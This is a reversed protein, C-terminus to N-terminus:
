PSFYFVRRWRPVAAGVGAGVLGGIVAGLGALIPIAEPCSGGISGGAADPDGCRYNAWEGYYVGVVAPPIAGVIAGVWLWNGRVWVAEIASLPTGWRAGHINLYLSDGSVVPGLGTVRGKGRAQVRVTAWSGISDIAARVRVEPTANPQSAAPTPIAVALSVAVALLTKM